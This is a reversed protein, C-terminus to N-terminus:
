KCKTVLPAKLFYIFFWDVQVKNGFAGKFTFFFAVWNCKTASPDRLFLGVFKCKTASPVRLFIFIGVLKCKKKSAASKQTGSPSLAVHSRFKGNKLAFLNCNQPSASKSHMKLALQVKKCKKASKQM